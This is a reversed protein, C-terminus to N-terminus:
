SVSEARLVDREVTSEGHDTEKGTGNDVTQTHTKRERKTSDTVADVGDTQQDRNM